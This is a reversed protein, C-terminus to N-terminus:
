RLLALPPAGHRPSPPPPAVCSSTATPPVPRQASSTRVALPGLWGLRAVERHLADIDGLLMAWSSDRLLWFSLGIAATLAAVVAGLRLTAHSIGM